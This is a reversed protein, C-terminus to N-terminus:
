GPGAKSRDGGAGWLLFSVTVASLLLLHLGAATWQWIRQSRPSTALVAAVVVGTVAYGMLIDFEVVLVYHLLGDLFLLSARWPYRGPWPRGRRRASRRQLELGVGFMLTLMGLFKGNALQPALTQVAQELGGTLSPLPRELYGIIGGPDTFIWINTALTGLIAIGRAIDLVSIREQPVDSPERRTPAVVDALHTMAAGGAPIGAAPDALGRRARRRDVRRAQDPRGCRRQGIRHRADRVVHQRLRTALDRAPHQRRVRQLPLRLRDPGRYPDAPVDRLLFREPHYWSSARRPSRPSSM